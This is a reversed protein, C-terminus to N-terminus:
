GTWMKSCLTIFTIWTDSVKCRFVGNLWQITMQVLKERIAQGLKGTKM